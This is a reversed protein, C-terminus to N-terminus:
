LDNGCYSLDFSANNIPFDSIENERLALALAMWNHLSPDKVKYCILEGKEDTVAVHCVEGRWAETMSISFQDSKLNTHNLPFKHPEQDPYNDLLDLLEMVYKISSQIELDRLKARAWVDGPPLIVPEYKLNKFASFPHSSRTDRPIGVMRAAMGVTGILEAQEKTVTGISEFRALVTPQKFTHESMEILKFEFDALATKLREKLPSTFPYPNHGVRILGKSFRNGCWWQFYNIMPTRLAGYVSAGLQFAIDTCMASLGGVHVAIREMELAISRIIELRPNEPIGLLNEMNYVFPLTHGVVTDGAISEALINRQLLTKKSKFLHEIGRHQYGLQIELHLVYEGNCSFRFHGPEIIGAHIPGVGVEHLDGGKISYFPHNYINKKQDPRDFPYRIGKLWPHGPFDIGFNENLEREFIHFCYFENTLPLLEKQEDGKLLHSFVLIESSADNAICCLFKLGGKFPYAFYNVCHYFNNSGFLERVTSYFVSYEAVPIDHINVSQNNKIKLYQM